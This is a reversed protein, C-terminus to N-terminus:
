VAKKATKVKKKKPKCAKATKKKPTKKKSTKKVKQSTAPKEAPTMPASSEMPPAIAEPAKEEKQALVSGTLGLVFLCATAWVVLKKM